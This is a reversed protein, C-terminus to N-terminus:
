FLKIGVSFSISGFDDKTVRDRNFVNIYSFKGTWKQSESFYFGFSPKIGMLSRGNIFGPGAVVSFYLSQRPHWSLGGFLNIMGRLDEVPTEDSNVRLVKDDELYADATFDITPKLKSQTNIFLQLGSGIGWPNNGATRDYITKNYQGHLYLSVKDGSQSFANLFVCCLSFVATFKLIPIKVVQMYRSFLRILILLCTFLKSVVVNCILKMAGPIEQHFLQM